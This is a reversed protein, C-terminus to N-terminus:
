RTYEPPMPVTGKFVWNEKETEALKDVDLLVEWPVDDKLYDALKARRWIGRVHEEDRWFNYVYEGLLQGYPIREEDQLIKEATAKFEAYLPNSEFRDLASRNQGRVWDLAEKGEIEELWVFEDEMEAEQATAATASVGFLIAITLRTM